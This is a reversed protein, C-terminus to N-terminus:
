LTVPFLNLLVGVASWTWTASWREQRAALLSWLAAATAFRDYRSILVVVAGLALYVILRRAGAADIGPVGSTGYSVLLM